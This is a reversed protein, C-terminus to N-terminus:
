DESAAPEPPSAQATAAAVPGPEPELSWPDDIKFEMPTPADITAGHEELKAYDPVDSWTLKRREDDM